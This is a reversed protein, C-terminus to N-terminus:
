GRARAAVRGRGREKADYLAADARDRWHGVEEGPELVAVGATFDAHFRAGDGSGQEIGGFEQRIREILRVAQNEGINEVIAAFEDGGLRGVVDSQRLRRRLLGALSSLVSDGAPHGYRDNLSKFSDLDILIMAAPRSPNRRREEAVARARELFATHTLLRTLGDRELLNKVFRAREIRSAVASLLLGPAVPKVLYDDGGARMSEIQSELHGRTTLFLIPLAAHAEQQRIYRALSFGDAGPLQIDLLVLDPRFMSLDAALHRPERCIRVSYGASELVARVFAAQDPDDEVSLIRPPDTRGRDLLHELRRMLAREDLPKEFYGDAGCHIADVRNNFGSPEALMLVAVGDGGRFSRIKEVLEYGSGDPLRAELIAADPMRQAVKELADRVSTAGRVSMGVSLALREIAVRPESESDVVLIDFPAPPVEEPAPPASEAAAQHIESKLKEALARCRALDRKEVPSGAKILAECIGEGEFGLITVRPFGYTSGSGSFGHFQIMLDHLARTNSPRAELESLFKEIRDFREDSGAVFQDRLGRLASEFSRTEADM